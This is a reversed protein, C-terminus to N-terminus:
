ILLVYCFQGERYAPIFACRVDAFLPHGQTKETYFRSPSRSVATVGDGNEQYYLLSPFSVLTGSPLIRRAGLGQTFVKRVRM